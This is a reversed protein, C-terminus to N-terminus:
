IIRVNIEIIDYNEEYFYKISHSNDDINENHQNNRKDLM